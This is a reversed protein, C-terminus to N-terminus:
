WKAKMKPLIVAEDLWVAAELVDSQGPLDAFNKIGLAILAVGLVLLIIKGINKM